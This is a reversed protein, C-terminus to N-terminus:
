ETKESQALYNIYVVRIEILVIESVHFGPAWSANVRVRIFQIRMEKYHLSRKMCIRAEPHQGLDTQKQAEPWLLKPSLINHGFDGRNVSASLCRQHHIENAANRKRKKGTKVPDQETAKPWM